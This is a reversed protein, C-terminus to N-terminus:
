MDEVGLDEPAPESVDATDGEEPANSEGTYFDYGSDFVNPIEYASGRGPRYENTAEAKMYRVLAAYTAALDPPGHRSTLDTLHLNEEMNEICGRYVDILTSETIVRDKTYNSGGGGYIFKTYLNDLEVVWDVGRFQGEKGTPNVLINYRIARRLGEPYVFHVDTLFREMAAAYKHKGTARFVRMWRPFLTEVRGIDGENMAFSTQEYLLFYKHTLMMNEKQKDRESLPRSKTSYLDGPAVYDGAMIRYSMEEIQSYQPKSKAFEELTTWEINEKGAQVRWCDLRMATGVERIVEHIRRFGPSSGLKGTEKSRYVAALKMLSNADLRAKQKELLLRWLADACAMKLHFLGMIFVVFQYRNWRTKEPARRELISRVREATGLDGHMLVVFEAIDEIDGTWENGSDSDVDMKDESCQESPMGVGGQQLLNIIADMNGRIYQRPLNKPDAHINLHSRQWLLDSCRLDELTVGHELRIIDGSTLHTLTDGSKEVTPASTTFNIDFNDYAYSALRTQGLARRKRCSERDLSKVADQIADVSISIGMHALSQIVKSPTNCAHMFLGIVSQIANCKQSTSQMMIGCSIHVPVEDANNITDEASIGNTQYGPLTESASHKNCLLADLLLWLEPALKELGKAMDEIRFNELKEASAHLASFHWGNEPLVLQKVTHAHHERSVKHAWSLLPGSFLKNQLLTDFLDVLVSSSLFDQM